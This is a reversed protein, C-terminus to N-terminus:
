AAAREARILDIADLAARIEALRKAASLGSETRAASKIWALAITETIDVGPHRLAACRIDAAIEDVLTM